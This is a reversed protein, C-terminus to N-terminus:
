RTANNKLVYFFAKYIPDEHSDATTGPHRPTAAGTAPNASSAHETMSRASARAPRGPWGRFGIVLPGFIFSFSPTQGWCGLLTQGWSRHRWCCMVRKRVIFSGVSFSFSLASHFPRDRDFNDRACDRDFLLSGSPRDPRPAFNRASASPKPIAEFSRPAGHPQQTGPFAPRAAPAGAPGPM